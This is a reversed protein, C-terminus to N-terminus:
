SRKKERQYRPIVDRQMEHWYREKDDDSWDQRRDTVERDEPRRHRLEIIVADSM